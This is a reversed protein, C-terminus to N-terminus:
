VPKLYKKRLKEIDAPDLGLKAGAFQEVSGYKRRINSFLSRLYERKLLISSSIKEPTEGLLRAVQQFKRNSIPQLYVSSFRFKEFALSNADDQDPRLLVNSAIITKSQKQPVLISLLLATGVGTRDRGGTCHFLIASNDSHHLLESFFPKYGALRDVYKPDDYTNVLTANTSRATPPCWQKM